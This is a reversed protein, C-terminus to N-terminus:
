DCFSEPREPLVFEIGTVDENDVRIQKASEWRKTPGRNGHRILCDGFHTGMRYTGSATVAFFFSGDVGTEAGGHGERGDAWVWRNAHPTGDANLLRGSIRRECMGEDLQLTIGPVSSDSVRVLTAQRYTGPARGRRFYITCGDVRAAVRYQGPESVSISFKGDSNTGDYGHGGDEGKAWVSADPIPAGNADLLRGSIKTSCLGESLRFRIGSVDQDDISLETAQNRSGPSDGQRYYVWCDQEALWLSVRYSDPKPVTIEFLGRADTRGDVWAADSESRVAVSSLPEGDPGLLTGSIRWVCIDETLSISLRRQDAASPGMLEADEWKYASGSSAYYVACGGLDVGWQVAGGGTFALEFEGNADARGEFYDHRDEELLRETRATIRVFPLGAGGPGVVRGRISVPALGSRWQAFEEYFSDVTLGFVDQFTQQWPHRSEWRGLPGLPEPLHARWFELLSQAGNRLALQHSALAGITYHWNDDMRRVTHDLPPSDGTLVRARQDALQEQMSSDADRRRLGAEAWDAGGEVLWQAADTSSMQQQIVHYYEHAMVGRGLTHEGYVGRENSPYDPQWHVQKLVVYGSSSAWGGASYWTDLTNETDFGDAKLLDILSDVDAAIYVTLLSGDPQVAFEDAYYNMVDASDSRVVSELEPPTEGAFRLLPPVSAPQLWNVTRSVEIWLADGRKLIPLPESTTADAPSYQGGQWQARVLARGIGLAVRDITWDNPGLWTVLNRGPRLTIKGKVPTMQRRWEVSETGSLTLVYGRGALLSTPEYFNGSLPEWAEVSEIAPFQRKLSDVPLEEGLWGVLNEGLELTVVAYDVPETAEDASATSGAALLAILSTLVTLSLRIVSM